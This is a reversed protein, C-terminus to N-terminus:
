IKPEGEGEAPAAEAPAEAAPAEEAVPAPAPAPTEEVPANGMPATAAATAERLEHMTASVDNMNESTKDKNPLVLGEAIERLATVAYKNRSKVLSEAGNMLDRARHAAVSVLAFRNEITKQSDEISIRAM